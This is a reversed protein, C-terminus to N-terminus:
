EERLAFTCSNVGLNIITLFRNGNHLYVELGKNKELATQSEKAYGYELDIRKSYESDDQVESNNLTITVIQSLEIECDHRKQIYTIQSFNGDLKKYSM